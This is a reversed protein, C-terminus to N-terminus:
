NVKGGGPVVVLRTQRELEKRGARISSGLAREEAMWFELHAFDRAEDESEAHVRCRDKHSSADWDQHWLDIPILEFIPM